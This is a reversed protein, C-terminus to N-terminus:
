PQWVEADPFFAAWAFWFENRHTITALQTGELPGDIGLGLLSWTTGTEPDSFKDSDATPTFTLVQEGVTRQFAIATGIAQSEAISTADLADATDGGWFIAIPEGGLEDNVVRATSVDGFPYAREVREGDSRTVTVGVVRSLAPFRDDPEGDFLFPRNGSSYFEYPNSGYRINFGLDDSLVDADPSNEVVDGYSVISIPILDLETGAFDGVISEGTVQQWLSTTADDWMVLDSNRLLGSVGFRLVEGDVRRDFAVATNCLPCFTVAVPTDGFWDNVIEHRTMISLPYFRTEGGIQVLAGPEREGLWDADALSDFLPTDIPPIIDRPDNTPIGVQLEDLAVTRLEWDTEWDKTVRLVQDSREGPISMPDPLSSPDASEVGGPPAARDDEASSDSETFPETIGPSASAGGPGTGNSCAALLLATTLALATGTTRTNVLWALSLRVRSLGCLALTERKTGARSRPWRSHTVNADLSRAQPVGM